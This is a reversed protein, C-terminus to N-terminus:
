SSRRPERIPFSGVLLTTMGFLKAGPFIAKLDLAFGKSQWINGIHGLREVQQQQRSRRAASEGLRALM